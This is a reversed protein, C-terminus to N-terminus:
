VNLGFQRKIHDKHILLLESCVEVPVILQNGQFSPDVSCICLMDAHYHSNSRTKPTVYDNKQKSFYRRCELRAVILDHPPQLDLNM